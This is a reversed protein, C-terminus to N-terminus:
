WMRQSSSCCWCAMCHWCRGERREQMCAGEPMHVATHSGQEKQEADPSNREGEDCCGGTANALPDPDGWQIGYGARCVCMADAGAYPRYLVMLRTNKCALCDEWTHSITGDLNYYTTINCTACTPDPCNNTIIFTPPPAVAEQTTITSPLAALLLVHCCCWCCGLLTPSTHDALFTVPRTCLPCANIM